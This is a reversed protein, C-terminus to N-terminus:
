NKFAEYLAASLSKKPNEECYDEFVKFKESRLKRYNTSSIVRKGDVVAHLRYASYFGDFQKVGQNYKLLEIVEEERADFFDKMHEVGKKMIELKAIADLDECERLVTGFANCKKSSEDAKERLAKSEERASIHDECFYVSGSIVGASLNAGILLMILSSVLKM